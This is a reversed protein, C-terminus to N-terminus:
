LYSLAAYLHLSILSVDHLFHFSDPTTSSLSKLANSDFLFLSEHSITASSDLTRSLYLFYFALLHLSLFPHLAM